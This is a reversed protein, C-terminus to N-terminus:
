VCTANAHIPLAFTCCALSFETTGIATLADQLLSIGELRARSAHVLIEIANAAIAKEEHLLLGHDAGVVITKAGVARIHVATEAIIEIRGGISRMTVIRRPIRAVAGAAAATQPLTEKLAALDHRM